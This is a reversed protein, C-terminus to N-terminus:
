KAIRHFLYLGNGAQLQIFKPNAQYQRLIARGFTGTEILSPEHFDLVVWDFASPPPLHMDPKDAPNFVYYAMERHMLHSTLQFTSLVGGTDGVMDVLAQRETRSTEGSSTEARAQSDRFAAGGITILAIWGGVMWLRPLWAGRAALASIVALFVFPAIALSSHFFPNHLNGDQSLLNIAISPTAGLLPTLHRPRLGWWVPAILVALYIATAKSLVFRLPTLPHLLITRLIEGPTKGLYGFFRYGNFQHGQGVLPILIHTVVVFWVASIVLAALGYRRNKESLFLWLGMAAVTLAIVERTGLAIVLCIAFPIPQRDRAYLVAGLLAPVALVEPHFDQLNSMVVAPYVLWAACVILAWRPMVGAQRALRWLFWASGALALSQAALLWLVSPYIVYLLALPYLIYAGHDAFIPYGLTPIFTPLGRSILYVGQDFYGLDLVGARFFAYRLSALLFYAASAAGIIRRSWRAEAVSPNDAPLSHQEPAAFLPFRTESVLSM